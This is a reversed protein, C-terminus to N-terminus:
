IVIDKIEGINWDLVSIRPILVPVAFFTIPLWKATHELSLFSFKGQEPLINKKVSQDMIVSIKM